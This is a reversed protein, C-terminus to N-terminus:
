KDGVNPYSHVCGNTKSAPNKAHLNCHVCINVDIKPTKQKPEPTEPEDYIHGLDYLCSLGNPPHNFCQTCVRM